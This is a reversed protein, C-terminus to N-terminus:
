AKPKGLDMITVRAADDVNSVSMSSSNPEPSATWSSEKAQAAKGADVEEEKPPLPPRAFQGFFNCYVIIASLALIAM